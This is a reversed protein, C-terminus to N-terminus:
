KFNFSVPGPVCLGGNCVGSGSSGGFYGGGIVTCYEIFIKNGLFFLSYFRNGGGGNTYPASATYKTGPYSDVGFSASVLGAGPGYSTAGAGGWNAQCTASVSTGTYGGGPAGNCAGECGTCDIAVGYGYYFGGAGGGGGATIIDDYANTSVFGKRQVASRGGGSGAYGTTVIGGGGM